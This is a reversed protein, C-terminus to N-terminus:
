RAELMTTMPILRTHDGRRLLMGGREDLGMFLGPEPATVDSGIDDCKGRWNEHLPAFGEGLYTNVWVLMHRSWSSIIAPATLEVCGEDHLTTENPTLGADGQTAFIPVELGVILWDPECEPDNSSAAARFGGCGAGNVKLGDPWTFQVAVEPPALAGIADSLGLQVAYVVRIADGLPQEPAFTVAARLVDESEAYHILGPEMRDTLAAALAKNFPDVQAGVAKGKLLPPFDPRSLLPAQTM